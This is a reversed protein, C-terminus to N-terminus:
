RQQSESVDDNEVNKDKDKGNNRASNRWHIMTDWIKNGECNCKLGFVNELSGWGILIDLEETM